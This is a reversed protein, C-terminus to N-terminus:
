PGDVAGPIPESTRASNPAVLRRDEVPLLEGGVIAYLRVDALIALAAFPEAAGIRDVHCAITL